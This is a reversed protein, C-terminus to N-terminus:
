LDELSILSKTLRNSNAERIRHSEQIDQTKLRTSTKKQEGLFAQIKTLTQHVQEKEQTGQIKKSSKLEEELVSKARIKTLRRTSPLIKIKFQKSLQTQRAAIIKSGTMVTTM